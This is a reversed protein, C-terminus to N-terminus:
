ASHAPERRTLTASSLDRAGAEHWGALQACQIWVSCLLVTLFAGRSDGGESRGVTVFRPGQLVRADGLVGVEVGFGFGLLCGPCCSQSAKQARGRRRGCRTQRGARPLTLERERERARALSRGAELVNVQQCLRRCCPGACLPAASARGM